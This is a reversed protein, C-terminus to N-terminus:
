GGSFLRGDLLDLLGAVALEGQDRGVANIYSSIGIFSAIMLAITAEAKDRPIETTQVGTAVLNRLIEELEGPNEIMHEAIEPHRQMETPLGSLFRAHATQSEEGLGRLIARLAAKVTTASQLTERLRAAQVLSSEHVVAAYIESKSAFYRYLAAATIGAAAAILQNTAREFGLRAFCEGAAALIRRRTDDSLQGRPRGTRLPTRKIARKGASRPAKKTM